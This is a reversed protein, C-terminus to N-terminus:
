IFNLSPVSPSRINPGDIKAYSVFYLALRTLSFYFKQPKVELELSHM